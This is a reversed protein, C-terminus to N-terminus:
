LQRGGREEMLLDSVLGRVRLAAADASV